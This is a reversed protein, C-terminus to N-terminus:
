YNATVTARPRHLLHLPCGPDPLLAFVRGALEGPVDERASWLVMNVGYNQLADLVNGPVSRDIDNLIAYAKSDPPRVDKIDFWAFAVAPVASSSGRM